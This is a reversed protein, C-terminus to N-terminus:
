PRFRLAAPYRLVGVNVGDAVVRVREGRELDGQFWAADHGQEGRSGLDNAGEVAAVAQDGARVLAVVRLPHLPQGRHRARSEIRRPARGLDVAVHAGDERVRQADVLHIVFLEIGQFGVEQDRLHLALHARHAQAVDLGGNAGPELRLGGDHAHLGVVEGAKHVSM